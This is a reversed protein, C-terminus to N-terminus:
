MWPAAVGALEAGSTRRYDPQPNKDTRSDYNWLMEYSIHSLVLPAVNMPCLSRRVPITQPRQAVLIPATPHSRADGANATASSARKLIGECGNDDASCANAAWAFM